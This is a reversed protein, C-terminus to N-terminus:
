QPDEIKKDYFKKLLLRTDKKYPIVKHYFKDIVNYLVSQYIRIKFKKQIIRYWITANVKVIITLFWIEKLIEKPM